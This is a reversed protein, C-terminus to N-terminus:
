LVADDGRVAGETGIRQGIARKMGVLHMYTELLLDMEESKEEEAKQLRMRNETILRDIKRYKYHYMADKVTRELNADMDSVLADYKKWNPSMEYTDSLLDSVLRGIAKDPHNLYHHINLKESRTYLDFIENKLQEFVQNEFALGQLEVKFFDVMPIREAEENGGVEEGTSTKLIAGEGEGFSQDHYNVLIRLLEKEQSALELKEFSKMEKVAGPDELQKRAEERRRERQNLKTLEKGAEHVAHNMLAESIKFREAVNKVYLQRQVPDGLNALTKALENVIETQVQPDSFSKDGLLVKIKFDIFSFAENEAYELFATPGHELVYSDPDHGDPLLLVKVSMREKLILDIGRMAAKIGAKDGDFIILVNQTYRRILRIQEPTLATGSSAVTHQIGNQHLLIVDMYGETLICLDKERIAKKALHLGYLIQSKHYIPSEPSNIYKGVDKRDGMIRGGFGVIKGMQNSIPFMVRDRFRDLLKDTKQSRSCLGLETLYEENYQKEEAAKVFSDWSDPAYGLQFTDITSQLLGREKFYSLGINK